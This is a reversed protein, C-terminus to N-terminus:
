RIVAFQPSVLMLYAAIRVRRLNLEPDNPDTTPNWAAVADVVAQKQAATLQNSTFLLNFRDVLAQPDNAVSVWDGHRVVTGIPNTIDASPQFVVGSADVWPHSLLWAYNFRTLSTNPNELGFQPATLATGPLPYDAPYFNFVSPAAFVRQGFTDGWWWSFAHGDTSGNLARVSATFLLTPERLHGYDAHDIFAPNRAEDHLLVAALTARLDGRRGSGIGSYTGSNFAAAVDNVYGPSPNSTVFHRILQRGVFPGINPHNMVSDLVGELAQDPTRSAPLTVGSLLPRVTQDHHATVGVMDNGLYEPNQWGCNSSCWPNVGGAGFTWGTLAYAYNRVTDNNYTAQCAGGALTGDANLQCTGITFLQLLERGLNENPADKDNNVGNLYEGMMPSKLVNRLVDRYNGFANDRLMQHYRRFGYTGSVEHESVVFLQGLAFAVRQRLQDPGSVAQNYFDLLVPISSYWDGWCHQNATSNPDPFTGTCFDVDTRSWRHIADTGGRAYMSSPVDFQDLLWKRPGNQQITAILAESAGFSAQQAMRSADTPTTPQPAVTASTTGTTSTSGSGSAANQTTANGAGGSGGGGCSALAMALLAGGTARTFVHAFRPGFASAVSHECRMAHTM